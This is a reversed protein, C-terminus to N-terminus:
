AKDGTDPFLHTFTRANKEVNNGAFLANIVAVMHAGADILTQANGINIGGIAVIPIHLRSRAEALVALSAGPANPKTKSPYFRGM